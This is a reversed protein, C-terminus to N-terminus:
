DGGDYIGYYTLVVDNSTDGGHYNYTFDTMVAGFHGQTQSDTALDIIDFTNGNTPTTLIILLRLWLGGSGLSLDGVV